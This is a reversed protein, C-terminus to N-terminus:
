TLGGFIINHLRRRISQMQPISERRSINTRNTLFVVYVGSEPDIWLSTGTFGTHGFASNDLLDGASSGKSAAMWGLHRRDQGVTVTEGVFTEFVRSPILRASMLGSAFRFLDTATSFLGANGSVGGLYFALEDDPLGRLVVGERECTPAIPLTENPLFTTNRMGLPEFIEDRCFDGYPKSTIREVIAMLTIFNLCSYEIKEMLGNVPELQIISDLLEKGKVERWAESYSPMGSTHTLLHYISINRKSEPVQFYDGMTDWLTLEGRSLLLMVATTTAVIKTMSALDYLTDITTAIEGEKSLTGYAKAYIPKGDIGVTLVGGPYISQEIGSSM